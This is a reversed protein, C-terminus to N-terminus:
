SWKLVRFCLLSASVFVERRWSLLRVMELTSRLSPLLRQFMAILLVLYILGKQNAAFDIVRELTLSRAATIKVPAGSETRGIHIHLDAIVDQKISM